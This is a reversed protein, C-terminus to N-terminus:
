AGRLGHALAPRRDVPAPDAATGAFLSAHVPGDGGTMRERVRAAVGEAEADIAALARETERPDGLGGEARLLAETRLLPDRETWYATEAGSRHVPPAGSGTRPEVGCTLAEVIAPGGGARAEALASSVVAHVAAADNGDVRHSRTGSGTGGRTATLTGTRRHPPSGAARQDSQVLFVVPANWVAAFDYAERADGEGTAGDGTLALAAVDRGRRHAAYTLGVAHSANAALPTCQPACRHRRPDYGAHWDGRFLTLARVPDVGRTVLAVSDRYSPFLWDQESLALVGGVQTAEQGTSSPYVALLGQRALTGAQQNFRRGIVMARHLEALRTHDPATFLPHEVRRGHRDVLRVPETSPLPPAPSSREDTHKM